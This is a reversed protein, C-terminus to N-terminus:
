RIMRKKLESVEAAIKKLLDNDSAQENKTKDEKKESASNVSELTDKKEWVVWPREKKWLNNLDNVDKMTDMSHWFGDYVFQSLKGLKTMRILSEELMEGKELYKLAEKHFVMFGGNIYDHLVPKEDFQKIIQSENAIVKGYKSSPHVASITAPTKHKEYRSRHYDIIKNVDINSVGDGYTIMFVDDDIYDAVMLIREATLTEEGTEAFTVNYDYDVCKKLCETEGNSLDMEFDDNYKSLNLFYDKIMQSKYGLCLIFDKHGWHAYGNMIHLLIPYPGIKVMPKPKFETEEKLRTGQGGCLIITKM